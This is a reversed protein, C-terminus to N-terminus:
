NARYRNLNLQLLIPETIIIVALMFAYSDNMNGNKILIKVLLTYLM